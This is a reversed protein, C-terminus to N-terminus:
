SEKFAGARARPKRKNGDGARQSHQWQLRARRKMATRRRAIRMIGSPLTWM